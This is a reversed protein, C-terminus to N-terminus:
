VDFVQEGQHFFRDTHGSRKVGESCRPRPCSDLRGILNGIVLRVMRFVVVELYCSWWQIEFPRSWVGLVEQPFKRIDPKQNGAGVM